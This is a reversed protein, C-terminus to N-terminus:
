ATMEAYIEEMVDTAVFVDLFVNKRKKKPMNKAQLGTVLTDPFIFLVWRVEENAYSFLQTILSKEM